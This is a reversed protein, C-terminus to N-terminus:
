SVVREYVVQITFAKLRKPLAWRLWPLLRSTVTRPVYYRRRFHRTIVNAFYEEHYHQLPELYVKHLRLPFLRTLSRLSAENWLGMHHPPINLINEGLGLFSDNNPVSVILKGGPRLCAIQAELFSRVDPIHELVQFSCVLDYEGAHAAAHSEVSELRVDRGQAVGERVASGNLELGTAIAGQPQIASLFDGRGCGVELVKMGTHIHLAAQQHEWKWPMYYWDFEQLQGYFEDDGSARAPAFFRLGTDLCRFLQISGFSGVLRDVDMGFQSRYREVIWPADISSELIVNQSHTLPSRIANQVM